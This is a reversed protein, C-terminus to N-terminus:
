KSCMRRTAMLFSSEALQGPPERSYTPRSNPVSSGTGTGLRFGLTRKYMGFLVMKIRNMESVVVARVVMGLLTSKGFASCAIGLGPGRAKTKLELSEARMSATEAQLKAVETRDDEIHANEAQACVSMHQLDFGLGPLMFVGSAQMRTPFPM